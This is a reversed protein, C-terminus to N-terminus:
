KNILDAIPKEPPTEPTVVTDDALDERILLDLFLERVGAKGRKRFVTQVEQPTLNLGTMYQLYQCFVRSRSGFSIVLILFLVFAFILYDLHHIWDLM